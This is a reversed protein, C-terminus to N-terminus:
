TLILICLVISPMTRHESAFRTCLQPFNWREFHLSSIENFGEGGFNVLVQLKLFLKLTTCSLSTAQVLLAIFRKGAILTGLPRAQATGTMSVTALSARVITM